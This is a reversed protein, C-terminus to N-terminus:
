EMHENCFEEILQEALSAHVAPFAALVTDVLQDLRDLYLLEEARTDDEGSEESNLSAVMEKTINKSIWEKVDAVLQKETLANEKLHGAKAYSFIGLVLFLGFMLFLVLSSYTSGFLSIVDMFNLIAFVIGVSGIVTFTAGSSRYDEYRAVASVFGKADKAACGSATTCGGSSVTTKASESDEETDEEDDGFYDDFEEGKLFAAEQAKQMVMETEVSYFAKFLKKAKNFDEPAVYVGLMTEEDLIVSSIGSYQLFDQLKKTFLAHEADVKVLNATANQLLVEKYEAVLEVKCDACHTIGERYETKCKPCWPM